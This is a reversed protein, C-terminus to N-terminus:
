FLGPILHWRVKACYETYGPLNQALFKEEDFLRWVLALITLVSPILGWWSGLALSMGTFYIAASTYMPNRVIAYPGTSIVRQDKAVEVTASGFSNEKFVRFVMWMSVIVLIDGLVSLWSPVSSWRFRRDLGPVAFAAIAPLGACLVIIKQIIRKEAAPGAKTRNELLIPDNSIFVILPLSSVTNVGLFVWAQRYDITGASLFLALAILVTFALTELWITAKPNKV